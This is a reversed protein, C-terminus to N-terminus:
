PMAVVNFGAPAAQHFAAAGRPAGFSWSTFRYTVVGGAEPLEFRAPLGDAGLHLTAHDPGTADTFTLELRGAGTSRVRVGPAAGNMLLRWWVSASATQSADFTVLQHLGPHLWEGGDGRLTVIEGSGSFELRARDPPELVLTWAERTAEGTLPDQSERVFRAAARGRRRLRDGLASRAPAAAHVRKAARHAPTAASGPAAATWTTAAAVIMATAFASRM